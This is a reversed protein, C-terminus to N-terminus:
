NGVKLIKEICNNVTLKFQEGSHMEKLTL